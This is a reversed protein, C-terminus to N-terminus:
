YMSNIRIIDSRSLEGSVNGKYIDGSITTMTFEGPYLAFFNPGYLMISNFDFNSGEIHMLSMPIKKFQPHFKDEINDWIVILYNDRDERCQEHFFGLIHMLEHLVEKKGCGEELVVQRKKEKYGLSAYCNNEGRKFEVYGKEDHRPVFKVDTNKNFYEMAEKVVERNPLGSEIVYPIKGGPWLKPKGVILPRKDRGEKYFSEKDSVLIDGQYVVYKGDIFVSTVLMNGKRDLEIYTEDRKEKEDRGLFELKKEKGKRTVKKRVKKKVPKVKEVKTTSIQKPPIIKKGSPREERYFSYFTYILFGIFVAIVIKKMVM